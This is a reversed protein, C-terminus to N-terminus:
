REAEMEVFPDTVKGLLIRGAAMLHPLAHILFSFVIQDATKKDFRAPDEYLAKLEDLDDLWDTMHFVFDQRAEANATKDDLRQFNNYAAKLVRVLEPSPTPFTGASPPRTGTSVRKGNRLPRKASMPCYRKWKASGTVFKAGGSGFPH